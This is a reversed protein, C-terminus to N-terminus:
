NAPAAPAPPKAAPAPNKGPKATAPAAAPKPAAAKSPVPKTAVPRSGAPAATAPAPTPAAAPVPTPTTAVAAVPAPVAQLSYRAAYGCEMQKVVVADGPYDIVVAASKGPMSISRSVPHGDKCTDQVAWVGAATDAVGDPAYSCRSPVSMALVDAMVNRPPVVLTPGAFTEVKVDDGHRELAFSKTGLPTFGIIVLSDAGAEVVFPFDSELLHTKVKVRLQKRSSSALTSLPADFGKCERLRPAFFGQEIMACGSALTAALLAVAAPFRPKV